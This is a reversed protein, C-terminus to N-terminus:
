GNAQGFNYFNNSWFWTVKKSNRSLQQLLLLINKALRVAVKMLPDALKRLLLGLFGGSQIIISIEAKSLKIDTSMNNEFTNRQKTAQRTTLLLEHPLISGNFMKMNMRLTVGTQDKVEIKLKNQQSDSLKINVKNYRVM